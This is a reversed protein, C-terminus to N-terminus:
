GPELPLDFGCGGVVVAVMGEARLVRGGATEALAIVTQSRALRIRTALRLPCGTDGVHFTAIRVLPNDPALLRVRTIPDDAGGSRLVVPVSYGSEAVEPVELTLDGTDVPRGAAFLAIESDTRAATAAASSTFSGLCPAALAWSLVRRRTPANPRWM